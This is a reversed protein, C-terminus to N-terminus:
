SQKNEILPINQDGGSHEMLTSMQTGWMMSFKDEFSNRRTKMTRIGLEGRNPLIAKDRPVARGQDIDKICKERSSEIRNLMRIVREEELKKSGRRASEVMMTDVRASRVIDM